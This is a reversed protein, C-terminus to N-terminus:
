STQCNSRSQGKIGQQQDNQKLVKDEYRFSGM